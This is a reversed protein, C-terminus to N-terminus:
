LSWNFHSFLFHGPLDVASVNMMVLLKPHGFADMKSSAKKYPVFTQGRLHTPEKTYERQSCGLSM